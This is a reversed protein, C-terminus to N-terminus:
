SPESRASSKIERILAILAKLGAPVHRRGPYYLCLGPYSPSWNELVPVLRGAKIDNRIAAESLYALGVGALAAEILLTNEDLTLSGPVDIEIEEGHQEFEWRYVAGSAMRARICRHQLLDEPVVPKKRGKFYAPSGVVVQRQPGGIPVAIMDQPVAEAIRVGADFGHGVIDVLRGETVLVVNMDPYRRMYELIIPTLIVRAAAAALNIRLTGAPTERHSNIGEIAESIEGLAPGLRSIFQQGADTMSVSRTTRNFLRVGLRAELAAIAHSLASTSMALETAAARFSGLNAVAVVAEFETLGTKVM